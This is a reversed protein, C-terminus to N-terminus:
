FFCFFFMWCVGRGGRGVVDTGCWDFGEIIYVQVGSM